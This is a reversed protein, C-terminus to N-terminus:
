SRGGGSLAVGLVGHEISGSSMEGDRAAADGDCSTAMVARRRFTPYLVAIALVTFSSAPMIIAALLPNILGVVCLAAAIINYAISTAFTWRIARMARRSGEILEVLPRVGEARLYVDAAALSAEAGGRVAIGVTAGALAPADNVGDGVMIVPGRSALSQVTALKQEPGLSAHVDAADIQLTSAVAHVVAPADGSLILPTIGMHRLHDIAEAADPRIADRLMIAGLLQGDRAIFVRLSDSAQAIRVSSDELWADMAAGGGLRERLFAESGVLVAHGDIEGEVGRGLVEGVRVVSSQVGRLDPGSRDLPADVIARAIHHSSHQLMLKAIAVVEDRSWGDAALIESVSPKGLTLTGTKDLAIRPGARGARARAGALKEIAEAHKILMGARAARGMALTMVLPTALGLGCPCTVVLLAVAHEIAKSPSIPWWVAITVVALALIIVLFWIAARDALRVISSRTRSGEEVLRMLRGIRTSEGTADVRIQLPAATNITGAHAADGVSASVPVSEGTLLSRDITSEGRTIVGDVPITEGSRVLVTQGPSLSEVSVTRELDGDVLTASSPTLCFLLEVSDGAWRQQKHQIYRGILLFFILVSISDFYLEGTGRVTNVVGWVTGLVLGLSIPIDLHITRARLAAIASSILIRGPWVLCLVSLATSVVRFLWVHGPEMADFAGAYLALYIIMVNGALAGAVGVRVLMERDERARVDRSRVGRAPHPTYGLTALMAAIHSLAVRRPEWTVTLVARRYDLRASVVGPAITPLRELLWLCASCTVGELLLDVTLVKADSASDVSQEDGCPRCYLKAFAPDDFQAFASSSKAAGGGPVRGSNSNGEAMDRLAYYRDLGCGHIVGFAARCGGCCFQEQRGSEVLGPPVRLGCHSCAVVGSSHSVGQRLKRSASAEHEPDASKSNATTRMM